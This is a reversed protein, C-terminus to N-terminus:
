SITELTSKAADLQAEVETFQQLLDDLGTKAEDLAEAVETLTGADEEAQTGKEGGQLAEPMNDFYEQEEDAIQQADLQLQDLQNTIEAEVLQRIETLRNDIKVIAEIAKAIDKRRAANM